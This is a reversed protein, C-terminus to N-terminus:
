REPEWVIQRRVVAEGGETVLRTGEPWFARKVYGLGLRGEPAEAVSTVAGVEVGGASLKARPGAGPPLTLQVLGRQLHGRLTARLVTEQGVYCGKDFSIAERTLGAEMPLRGEDMDVGYRPIGAAIRLLELDEDTLAVAGAALLAAHVGAAEGVAVWLDVCPAGRRTTPLRALIPGAVASRDAADPGFLPVARLTGSLDEFLVDDMIVFKELHALTGPASAPALALLVHDAGVLVHGEGLLHGRATLFAAYAAEGPRLRNLDQTSMRHLFDLADKGTARLFGQAQPPGAALGSRAATIRDTLNMRGDIYRRDAAGPL